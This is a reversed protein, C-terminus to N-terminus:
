YGKKNLCDRYAHDYARQAQQSGYVGGGLAGTAGGIIAGAGAGRWGGFLGGVLAGLGALGVAGRAGQNLARQSSAGSQGSAWARCEAVDSNYVQASVGARPYPTYTSSPGACSSVFFASALTLALASRGIRGRTNESNIM